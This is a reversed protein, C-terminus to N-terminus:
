KHQYVINRANLLHNPYTLVLIFFRGGIISTPLSLVVITWRRPRWVLIITRGELSTRRFAARKALCCYPAPECVYWDIVQRIPQYDTNRCALYIKAKKNLPCSLIQVELSQEMRNQVTRTHWNRWTGMDFHGVIIVIRCNHFLPLFPFAPLIEGEPTRCGCKRPKFNGGSPIFLQNSAGWWIILVKPVPRLAFSPLCSQPM